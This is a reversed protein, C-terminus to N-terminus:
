LSCKVLALLAGVGSVEVAFVSMLKNIRGLPQVSRASRDIHTHILYVRLQKPAVM